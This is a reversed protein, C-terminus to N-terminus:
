EGHRAARHPCAGDGTVKNGEDKIKQTQTDIGKQGYAFTLSLLILLIQGTFSRM